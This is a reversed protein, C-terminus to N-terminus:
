NLKERLKKRIPNPKGIGSIQLNVYNQTHNQPNPHPIHATNINESPPLSEPYRLSLGLDAKERRM